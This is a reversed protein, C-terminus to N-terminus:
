MSAALDLVRARLAPPSTDGAAAVEILTGPGLAACSWVAGDERVRLQPRTSGGAELNATLSSAERTAFDIMVPVSRVDVGVVDTEGRMHLELLDPADIRQIQHTALDVRLLSEHRDTVVVAGGGPTFVMRNRPRGPSDELVHGGLAVYNPPSVERPEGVADWLSLELSAGIKDLVALQTGDPSWALASALVEARGTPARFTRVPLVAGSDVHLVEVGAESRVALLGGSRNAELELVPGAATFRQLRQEPGAWVEVEAGEALAVGRPLGVLLGRGPARTSTRAGHQEDWWCSWGEGGFMAVQGADDVVASVDHTGFQGGLARTRPPQPCRFSATTRTALAVRTYEGAVVDHPQVVAFGGGPALGCGSGTFRVQVPSTAPRHIRLEHEVVVALAGAGVWQPARDKPVAVFSSLEGRRLDGVAWAEGIAVAFQEHAADVVLRSDQSGAQGPLPLRWGVAGSALSERRVFPRGHGMRTFLVEDGGLLKVSDAEVRRAGGTAIELVDMVGDRGTPVAVVFRGDASLARPTGKYKILREGGERTRIVRIGRAEEALVIAADDAIVPTREPALEIAQPPAGPRTLDWLHVTSVWGRTATPAAQTTAVLTRGDSGLRWGSYIAEGLAITQAREGGFVQVTQGTIVAWVPADGAVVIQTASGAALIQTGPKGSLDFRWVGGLEDRGLLGGALPLVEALPWEARLVQTPLGRVEAASALFRAREWTSAEDGALASLRRMTQLPDSALVARAEVLTREDQSRIVAAQSHAAADDQGEAVPAAAPAPLPRMFAYGVGGLLLVGAAGAAGAIRGWRPRLEPPSLAALLADMGPWRLAPDPLLGRMVVRHLWQPVEHRAKVPQVRGDRVASALVELQDGVFPRQGYLAEYLATCFSFQDTKADGRGGAFQEAAMYAPTGLVAGTQTLLVDAVEGVSPLAPAEGEEGALGFFHALGFDLVRVRGDDGVIVNAPKFDRHIVGQRHAAALGEGAQRFVALVERWTRPQAALWVRLTPGTLFEMAVYIEDDVEGVQYVHVVNPHSLRALARAERLTRARGDPRRLAAGRILKLAVKRELKDDYAAYVVGMGGEGLLKLVQYPGVTPAEGTAKFLAAHIMAKTRRAAGDALVEPRLGPSAHTDGDRDAASASAGEPQTADADILRM